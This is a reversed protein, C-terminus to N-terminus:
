AYKDDTLGIHKLRMSKLMVGDDDSCFFFFFSKKSPIKTQKWDLYRFIRLDLLM